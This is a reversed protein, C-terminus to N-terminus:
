WLGQQGSNPSSEGIAAPPKRRIVAKDITPKKPPTATSFGLEEATLEYSEIIDRVEAIKTAREDHKLQEYKQTLHSIVAKLEDISDFDELNKM